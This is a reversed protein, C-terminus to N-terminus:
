AASSAKEVRIVSSVKGNRLVVTISETATQYWYTEFLASSEVGSVSMSPKGFLRVLEDRDMGEVILSFSVQEHEPKPTSPVASAISGSPRPVDPLRAGEDQPSPPVRPKPKAAPPPPEMKKEVTRNIQGLIGVISTGAAAAAAATKGDIVGHEIITQGQLATAGAILFLAPFAHCRSARFKEMPNMEIYIM